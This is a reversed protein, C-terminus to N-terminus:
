DQPRKTRHDDTTSATARDVSLADGGRRTEKGGQRKTKTWFHLGGGLLLGLAISLWIPGTPPADNHPTAIAPTAAAATLPPGFDGPLAPTPAAGGQWSDLAPIIPAPTDAEPAADFYPHGDSHLTFHYAIDAEGVTVGFGRLGGEAVSLASIQDLPQSFIAQYLGRGVQWVCLGAADTVCPMPEEEPLRELIVTEGAAAAGDAWRLWIELRWSGDSQGAVGDSQGAVGEGQGAVGPPPSLLWALLATAALLGYRM